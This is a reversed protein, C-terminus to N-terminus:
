WDGERVYPHCWLTVHLILSKTWAESLREARVDDVGAGVIFPRLTISLPYLAIPLYRFPVIGVSQVGDTRNKKTRHHRLGIEHQYDLWAQDYPRTCADEIWKMFRPHAADLYAQDPTGDGGAFTPLFFHAIREIWTAFLEERRDRVVKWLERLADEDDPGFGIAQKLEELEALSVPSPRLTPTGYTYGAIDPRVAM